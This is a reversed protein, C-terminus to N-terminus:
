YKILLANTQLSSQLHTHIHSLFIDYQEQTHTHTHGKTHLNLHTNQHFTERLGIIPKNDREGRWAEGGWLDNKRDNKHKSYQGGKYGLMPKNM